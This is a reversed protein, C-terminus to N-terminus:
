AVPATPAVDPINFAAYPVVNAFASEVEAVTADKKTLVGKIATVWEPGYKVGGMILAQIIPSALIEM